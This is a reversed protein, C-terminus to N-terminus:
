DSGCRPADHRNSLALPHRTQTLRSLGPNDIVNILVAVPVYFRKIPLLIRVGVVGLDGDIHAAADM